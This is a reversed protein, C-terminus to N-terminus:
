EYLVYKTFLDFFDWISRFAFLSSRDFLDLIIAIIRWTLMHLMM